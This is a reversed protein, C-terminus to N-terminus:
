EDTLLFQGPFIAPEGLEKQVVFYLGLAIALNMYNGKAAGLIHSPRTISYTFNQKPALESLIDEQRYYTFNNTTLVPFYAIGVVDFAEVMIRIGEHASLYISKRM